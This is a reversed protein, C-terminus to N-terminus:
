AVVMERRSKVSTDNTNQLILKLIKIYEIKDGKSISLATVDMPSALEESLFPILLENYPSVLDCGIQNIAKEISRPTNFNWSDHEFKEKGILTCLNNSISYPIGYKNQLYAQYETKNFKLDYRIFREKIQPTLNILGQPNSCAVIMVDALKKGSGLVRQGLLNLMANLTATLTGNFIEDLFLVDGDNLCTLKESDYYEWIKTLQNPYVGGVAENPMLNPLVMTVMKNGKSEIYEKVFDETINTKGIGPPSMFLPVTTERLIKNNYTKNLVELM